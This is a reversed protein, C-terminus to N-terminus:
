CTDPYKRTNLGNIKWLKVSRFFCADLVGNAQSRLAEKLEEQINM